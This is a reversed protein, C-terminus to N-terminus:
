FVMKIELSDAVLLPKIKQRNGRHVPILEIIGTKELLLVDQRVTKLDRGLIKALEYISNPQKKKLVYLIKAKESALISRILSIDSKESSMTREQSRLRNFIASFTGREQEIFIRKVREKRRAM